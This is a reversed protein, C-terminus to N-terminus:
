ATGKTKTWSNFRVLTGDSTRVKVEPLGHTDESINEMLEQMLGDRREQIYELLRPDQQIEHLFAALTAAINILETLVPEKLSCTTDVALGTALVGKWQGKSDIGMPKLILGIENDELTYGM